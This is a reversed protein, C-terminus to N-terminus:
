KLVVWPRSWIRYVCGFPDEVSFGFGLAERAYEGDGGISGDLRSSYLRGPEIWKDIQRDVFGLLAEEISLDQEGPLDADSLGFVDRATPSWIIWLQDLYRSHVPLNSHSGIALFNHRDRLVEMVRFVAKLDDHPGGSFYITGGAVQTLPASLLPDGPDSTRPSAEGQSYHDRAKAEEEPAAFLGRVQYHDETSQSRFRSRSSLWAPEHLTLSGPFGHM